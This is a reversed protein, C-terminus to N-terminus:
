AVDELTYAEVQLPIERCDKNVAVLDIDRTVMRALDDHEPVGPGLRSLPLRKTAPGKESPTKPSLSLAPLTPCDSVGSDSLRRATTNWHKRGM